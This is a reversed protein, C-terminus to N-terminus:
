SVPCMPTIVMAGRGGGGGQSWDREDTGARQMLDLQLALEYDSQTEM